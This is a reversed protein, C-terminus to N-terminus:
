IAQILARLVQPSKIDQRQKILAVGLDLALKESIARQDIDEISDLDAVHALGITRRILEAGAYGLSEHWTHAVFAAAFGPASFVPDKCKETVLALFRSEFTKWLTDISTLLYERYHQKETSDGDLQLQGAFNLLLNGIISGIDFSMPGYFAFEPDIVKTSDTRVFVSGSHLDGHLLAQADNMFHYKLKAAETKLLEDQWLAEAAERIPPNVSNREHDCFPDWFFLEETIKCLDPNIYAAVAAKKQYTDVYFDSTHFLTDALFEGLQRGLEPLKRRAVLAHRLNEHDGIDEMIFASRPLDFFYVDPVYDAAWRKEEKLTEAEIRIRDLSLPWGEGIIRVYPLAQKVIVSQEGNTVRYVFNINGDGIEEVRLSESNTFLKTNLLVFEVIEADNAFKANTM